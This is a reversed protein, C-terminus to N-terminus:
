APDDSGSQHFPERVRAGRRAREDVPVATASPPIGVHANWLGTDDARDRIARHGLVQDQNSEVEHTRRRGIRPPSQGVEGREDPGLHPGFEVVGRGLDALEAVRGTVVRAVQGDREPDARVAEVAEAHGAGVTGAVQPPDRPVVQAVHWARPVGAVEHQLDARVVDEDALVHEPPDLVLEVARQRHHPALDPDLAEVARLANGGGVVPCEDTEQVPRSVEMGPGIFPVPFEDKDIRVGDTGVWLIWRRVAAAVRATRPIGRVECRDRGEFRFPRSVATVHRHPDREEVGGRPVREGFVVLLLHDPVELDGTHAEIERVRGARVGRLGGVGGVLGVEGHRERCVHPLRARPAVGGVGVAAVVPMAVRDDARLAVAHTAAHCEHGEAPRVAPLELEHEPRLHAIGVEWM